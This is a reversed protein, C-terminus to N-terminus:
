KRKTEDPTKQAEEIQKLFEEESAAQNKLRNSLKNVQPRTNDSILPLVKKLKEDEAIVQSLFNSIEKLLPLQATSVQKVLAEKQPITAIVTNRLAKWKRKGANGNSLPRNLIAEYRPMDEEFFTVVAEVASKDAETLLNSDKEAEKTEEPSPSEDVNKQPNPTPKGNKIKPLLRFKMKKQRFEEPVSNPDDTFHIKGNEDRWKYVAAELKEDFCVLFSVMVLLLFLKKLVRSM